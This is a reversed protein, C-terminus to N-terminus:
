QMELQRVCPESVIVKCGHTLGAVLVSVARAAAMIAVTAVQRCVVTNMSYVCVCVCVCVDNCLHKATTCCPGQSQSFKFFDPAAPARSIASHHDIYNEKGEQQLM